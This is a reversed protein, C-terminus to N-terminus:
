LISPTPLHESNHLLTRSAQLHLSLLIAEVQIANMYTVFSCQLNYVGIM